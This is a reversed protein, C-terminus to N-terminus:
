QPLRTSPPPQIALGSTPQIVLNTNKGFSLAPGQVRDGMAIGTSAVTGSPLLMLASAAIDTEVYSAGFSVKRYIRIVTGAADIALVDCEPFSARVKLVIPAKGDYPLLIAQTKAFPAMEGWGSDSLLKPDRITTDLTLRAPNAEALWPTDSPAPAPANPAIIDVKLRRYIMGNGSEAFAPLSLMACLMVTTIRAMRM